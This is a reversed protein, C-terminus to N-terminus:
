STTGIHTVHHKRGPRGADAPPTDPAGDGGPPRPSSARQARRGRYGSAALWAALLVLFGPLWLKWLTRDDHTTRDSGIQTEVGATYSALVQWGTVGTPDAVTLVRESTLGGGSLTLVLDGSGSASVLGGDYTTVSVKRRDTWHADYPGPSRNVDLGVPVRHGTYALLRAASRPCSEGVV